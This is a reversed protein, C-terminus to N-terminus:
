MKAVAYRTVRKIDTREVIEDALAQKMIKQFEKDGLEVATRIAGEEMPEVNKILNAYIRWIPAIEYRGEPPLKENFSIIGKTAFLNIITAINEAEREGLSTRIKAVEFNGKRKFFMYYLVATYRENSFVEVMTKAKELPTCKPVLVEEPGGVTGKDTSGKEEATGEEKPRAGESEVENATSKNGTDEATAEDGTTQKKEGEQGNAETIQQMGGTVVEKVVEESSLKKFYKKKDKDVKGEKYLRCLASSVSQYGIQLKESIETTTAKKPSIECLFEFVMEKTSKTKREKGGGAGSNQKEQSTEQVEIGTTASSPTINLFEVHETSVLNEELLLKFMEVAIDTNKQELTVEGSIDIKFEKGDFYKALFLKIAEPSRLIVKVSM